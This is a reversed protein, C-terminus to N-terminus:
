ILIKRGHGRVEKGQSFLFYLIIICIIQIIICTISGEFGFNGGNWITNGHTKQSIVSYGSIGSVNFGFVTGQFFNWSFHFAISFWLNKTYLYPLGILIGAIFLNIISIWEIHPNALHMIGFIMSSIILAVWRNLSSLLNSLMYGRIFVEESFAVFIFSLMSYLLNGSSFRLSAYSISKAILLTSFGFFISTFGFIIGYLYHKNPVSWFGLSIFSKKDLYTRFLWVTLFTAFMTTLSIVLKQGSTEQFNINLTTPM